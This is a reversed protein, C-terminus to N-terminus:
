KSTLYWYEPTFYYQTNNSFSDPPGSIGKWVFVLDTNPLFIAPLDKTFWDPAHYLNGQRSLFRRGDWYARVGDLKESM